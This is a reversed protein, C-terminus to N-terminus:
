RNNNHQSSIAYNPMKRTKSDYMMGVYQRYNIIIYVDNDMIM